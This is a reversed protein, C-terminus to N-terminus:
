AVLKNRENLIDSLSVTILYIKGELFEEKSLYCELLKRTVVFSIRDINQYVILYPKNNNYHEGYTNFTKGINYYYFIEKKEKRVRSFDDLIEHIVPEDSTCLRNIFNGITWEYFTKERM